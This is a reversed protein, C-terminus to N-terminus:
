SESLQILLDNDFESKVSLLIYLLSKEKDWYWWCKSFDWDIAKNSIYYLFLWLINSNGFQGILQTMHHFYDNTLSININIYMVLCLPFSRIHMSFWNKDKCNKISKGWLKTGRWKYKDLSKKEQECLGTLVHLFM